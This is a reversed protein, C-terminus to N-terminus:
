QEKLGVPSKLAGAGQARTASSPLLVGRDEGGAPFSLPLRSLCSSGARGARSNSHSRSCTAQGRQAGTDQYWNPNKYLLSELQIRSVSNQECFESASLSSPLVLFLPPQCGLGPLIGELLRRRRVSVGLGQQPIGAHDSSGHTIKLQGQM